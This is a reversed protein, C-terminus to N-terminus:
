PSVSTHNELFNIFKDIYGSHLAMDGFIVAMEKARERFKKGDDELMVLKISDAVSDRTYSGDDENRPIELGLQKADIVRSNLGQDVLFPLTIFPHGFMIGEVISSWGCHTLFGGVSDHSLIKLQPVWSRWVIGRGRVREEFGDPLEVPDSSGSPKRLVWFFPVGSLELGHALESLQDQSPTVESGLAVYVVSKKSQGDLWTKISGWTEDNDDDKQTNTHDKLKPPMLGLPFVPRHHLEELLPLWDPEFEYCHRILIAESGAVAKGGRYIDSYGSDNKQVSGVVWNAEFRRYAVKTEFKVWKPPVMFDEPKTRYDSGSIMTETPGFFALFWANIILFFARSVGLRAAVPPLWHPAFDYIIWDPSSQELFRTLGTELGDFAKKLFDMQEGHIDTTAEANEPLEPLKPLPIKVFTISSSLHPPLEPLRDINRPTSVFSIKHGKQAILKSLDLYPIIHGFALWPFMVIHLQRKHNDKGEM